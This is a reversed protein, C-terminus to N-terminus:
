EGEEADDSDEIQQRVRDRLDRARDFAEIVESYQDQEKLSHFSPTCGGRGCIACSM